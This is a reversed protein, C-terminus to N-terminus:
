HCESLLNGVEGDIGIEHQNSMIQQFAPIGDLVSNLSWYISGFGTEGISMLGRDIHLDERAEDFYALTYTSLSMFALIDRFQGIVQLSFTLM